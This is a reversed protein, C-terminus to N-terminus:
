RGAHVAHEADSTVLEKFWPNAPPGAQGCATCRPVRLVRHATLTPVGTLELAYAVGPLTPDAAALWRLSVLVALAASIAEFAGPRPATVPRSEVLDFDDEFGSTAGRRVIFCSHCATRGPVYLPGVTTVRGDSPLLPLWPVGDELRRVNTSPLGGAEAPTPAAVVLDVTAALVRRQDLREVDVNADALQREVEAAASSGGHVVVHAASLAARAASPSVDPCATAVYDAADDGAVHPGDALLGHADLLELAKRVSPEAAEGLRGIIETQTHAGDLLPLLSPLLARVARGRLEVVRGAHEFLIREGDDVIRWWPALLPSRRDVDPRLV